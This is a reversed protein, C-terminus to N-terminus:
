LLMVVAPLDLPVFVHQKVTFQEYAYEITVGEPRTVTRRALTRGPLPESYKPVRFSLELDHLWKVPWSWLEFRGDETGMAVSRRGVASVFVGPRAPGSLEVPSTGLDFRAVTPSEQAAISAAHAALASTALLITALPRAASARVPM